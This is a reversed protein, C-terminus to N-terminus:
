PCRCPPDPASRPPRAAPDKALADLVLASLAPPVDARIEAPPRPKQHVHAMMVAFQNPSDFPVRGTILQYLTVGLSYVDARRDATDPRQVQEPSMYRCTGLLAGTMTYTTGDLIKAIGFDVVKPRLGEDGRAILVNDPKLDRHVVGREHGHEVADLVAGFIARIEGYPMAGRWKALHAVLSPGEVLEMVIASLHEHEVFGYVQVVNPHLLAGLVRAERAFRRRIELDGALNTHLCKLAVIRDLAEDHASYVVGMGGEGIVGEVRYVGLRTGAPLRMPPLAGPPESGLPGSDARAAHGALAATLSRTGPQPETPAFGM